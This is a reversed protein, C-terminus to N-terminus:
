NRKKNQRLRHFVFGLGSVLILAFVIAILLIREKAHKQYTIKEKERFQDEMSSLEANTNQNLVLLQSLVSEPSNGQAIAIKISSDAISKAEEAKDCRALINVKFSRYNLWLDSGRLNNLELLNLAQNIYFIASDCQKEVTYCRALVVYTAATESSNPALKESIALSKKAYYITNEFDLSNIYSLSLSNFLNLYQEQVNKREDLNKLKYNDLINKAFFFYEREKIHNNRLGFNIGITNYLDAIKLKYKEENRKYVLLIEQSYKNETDLDGM